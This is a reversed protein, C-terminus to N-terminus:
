LRVDSDLIVSMTKEGASKIVSGQQEEVVRVASEQYSSFSSLSIDNSNDTYSNSASYIPFSERNYRSETPGLSQNSENLKGIRFRRRRNTTASGLGIASITYTSRKDRVRICIEMMAMMGAIMVFSQILLPLEFHHGFWFMIRLINAILLTLCVKPNDNSQNFLNLPFLLDQRNSQDYLYLLYM